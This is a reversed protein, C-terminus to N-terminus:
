HRLKIHHQLDADTPYGKLCLPCSFSSYSSSSQSPYAAQASGLGLDLNYAAGGSSALGKNALGYSGQTSGGLQSPYSANSANLGYSGQTSGGMHSPYNTGANSSSALTDARASTYGDAAYTTPAPQQRASTGAAVGIAFADNPDYALPPSGPSYSANTISAATAQKRRALVLIVVVIAAALLVCCVAGVSAGIIVATPDAGDATEEDEDGDGSGGGGGSTASSRCFNGSCALGIVSCKGDKCPCDLTGFPCTNTLNPTPFICLKTPGCSLGLNCTNDAECVCGACAREFARCFGERCVLGFECPPVQARCECDQCGLPPAAPSRCTNYNCTLGADCADSTTRCRCNSTGLVCNRCLLPNDTAGNCMNTEAICGVGCTERPCRLGTGTSNAVVYRTRTRTGAACAVSCSSESSWSGIVCDRNPSTSESIATPACSGSLTLDLGLISEGQLAPNLWSGVIRYVLRGVNEGGGHLHWASKLPTDIKFLYSRRSCPAFGVSPYFEHVTGNALKKAMFFAISPFFGEEDAKCVATSVPDWTVNVSTGCVATAPGLLTVAADALAVSMLLLAIM